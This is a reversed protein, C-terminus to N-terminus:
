GNGVATVGLSCPQGNVNIGASFEGAYETTGSMVAYDAVTLITDGVEGDDIELKGGANIPTGLQANQTFETPKSADVFVTIIYATGTDHTCSATWTLPGRQFVTHQNGDTPVSVVKSATAADYASAPKGALRDADRAKPVTALTSEKIQKGTVSNKKLQSGSIKHAVAKAQHAVAPATLGIVLAVAAVAVTGTSTIRRLNM